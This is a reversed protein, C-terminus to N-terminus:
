YLVEVYSRAKLLYYSCSQLQIFKTGHIDQTWEHLHIGHFFHIFTLYYLVEYEHFLADQNNEKYSETKWIWPVQAKGWTIEYRIRLGENLQQLLHFWKVYTWFALDYLRISRFMTVNTFSANSDIIMMAWPNVITYPLAIM